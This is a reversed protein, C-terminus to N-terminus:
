GCVSGQPHGFPKPPDVKPSQLDLRRDVIWLRVRLGEGCLLTQVQDRVRLQEFVDAVLILPARGVQHAFLRVDGLGVSKLCYKAAM